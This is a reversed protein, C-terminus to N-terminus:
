LLIKQRKWAIVEVGKSYHALQLNDADLTLKGIAYHLQLHQLTIKQLQWAKHHIEYRYLHRGKNLYLCYRETLWADLATKDTIKEGIEFNIELSSNKALNSSTYKGKSRTISAKEYPLGSLTKAILASFFKQAEINLFYVGKKGDKEIYTRLNIEHFDSILPLAPLLRPRIRQMTFPVLSVYYKGEFSDLPFASPVLASLWEFPVEWHLFLADNWEQYYLWQGTPMPWPRHATDSLLLSSPNM